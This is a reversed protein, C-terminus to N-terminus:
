IRTPRMGQVCTGLVIISCGICMGWRRGRFDTAPGAFFSGVLNGITYIAYVIGTDPTGKHLSFGFYERYQPYSNIAGILSGDYGNICSNLTAILLVLYLKSHDAQQANLAPLHSGGQVHLAVM